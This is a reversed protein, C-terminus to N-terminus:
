NPMKGAIEVREDSINTLLNITSLIQVCTVDNCDVSIIEYVVASDYGVVHSLWASVCLRSIIGGHGM